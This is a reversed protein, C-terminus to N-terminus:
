IVEFVPRLSRKPKALIYIYVHWYAHEEFSNEILEWSNVEHNEMNQNILLM